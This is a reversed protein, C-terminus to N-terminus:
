KRVLPVYRIHIFCFLIYGAILVPVGRIDGRLMGLSIAVGILFPTLALLGYWSVSLRARCRRCHTSSTPGLLFKRWAPFAEAGCNPCTQM